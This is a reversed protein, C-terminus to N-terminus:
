TGTGTAKISSVEHKVALLLKLPRSRRTAGNLVPVKDCNSGPSQALCLLMLLTIM